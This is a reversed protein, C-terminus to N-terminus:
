ERINDILYQSATNVVSDCESVCSCLISKVSDESCKQIDNTVLSSCVAGQKRAKREIEWLPVALWYFDDIGIRSHSTATVGSRASTDM